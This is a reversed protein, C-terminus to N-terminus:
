RSTGWTRRSKLLSEFRFIRSKEQLRTRIGGYRDETGSPSNPRKAQKSAAISFRTLDSLRLVMSPTLNPDSAAAAFVL